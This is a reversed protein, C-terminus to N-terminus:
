WISEILVPGVPTPLPLGGEGFHSAIEPWSNERSETESLLDSARVKHLCQTKNATSPWGKGAKVCLWVTYRALMSVNSGKLMWLVRHYKKSAEPNNRQFCLAAAGADLRSQDLFRKSHSLLGRFHPGMSQM